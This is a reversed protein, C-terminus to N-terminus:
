LLLIIIESNALRGNLLDGIVTYGVGLARPQFYGGIGIVLGGIAPWWMWHIPLHQFADEFAYVAVTLLLALIGVALGVLASAVLVNFALPVNHPEVAFMPGP